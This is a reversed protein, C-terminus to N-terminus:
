AFRRVFEALVEGKREKPWLIVYAVDASTRTRREKIQIQFIAKKTGSPQEVEMRLRVDSAGDRQASLRSALDAASDAAVAADPIGALALAATLHHIIKM